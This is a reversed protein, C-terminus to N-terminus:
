RSCDSPDGCRDRYSRKLRDLHNQMNTIRQRHGVYLRTGVDSPNLKGKRYALGAILARIAWKLNNCDDGPPTNLAADEEAHTPHSRTGSDGWGQNLMNSSGFFSSGVLGIGAGNIMNSQIVAAGGVAGAIGACHGPNQRCWATYTTDGYYLGMPDIGIMPNGGVYGYTSTDGSLGIPDSQVYRGTAAEYDRFYNQSLGSASDYRQGPFWLRSARRWRLRRKEKIRCRSIVVALM